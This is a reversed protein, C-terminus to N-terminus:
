SRRKGVLVIGQEIGTELVMLCAHKLSPCNRMVTKEPTVWLAIDGRDDYYRAFLGEGATEARKM